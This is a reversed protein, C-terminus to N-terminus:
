GKTRVFLLALGMVKDWSGDENAMGKFKDFDYFAKLSWIQGKKTEKQPLGAGHCVSMDSIHATAGHGHPGDVAHIPQVFEPKTGYTAINECDTTPEGQLGFTMKVGGDHVHGISGIVQGDITSTWNYGLLFQNQGKPPLVESTGCQRVDLWIIKVEDKFPHNPVIDYNMTLYVLEDKMNQNMLEILAAFIDTSQVKYGADKTGWDAFSAISRENGSAFIRESNRSTYGISVHPVSIDRSSCTEDSRGPGANFLIM